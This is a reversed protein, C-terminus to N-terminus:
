KKRMEAIEKWDIEESDQKWTVAYGNPYRLDVVSIKLVQENGLLNLTNLFRNFKVKPENRGLKIVITNQLKLKWARRDNVIFESVGMQKENLAAELEQMEQLLNKENGKPGVILPLDSFKEKQNPFFLEGQPNLLGKEGWRVLPTQEVIKIDIVDPWVRKVSAKEIWELNVISQQIQQLDANYLGQNVLEVLANKIDDEDVYQFVGEIRVYRVPLWDAGQAKVEQWGFWGIILLAVIGILFQNYIKNM